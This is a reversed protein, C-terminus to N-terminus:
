YKRILISSLFILVFLLLWGATYIVVRIASKIDKKDLYLSIPYMFVISGCILASTVFLVLFLMAGFLNPANGFLEEGYRILLGILGCYLLVGLAQLFGILKPSLRGRDFKKSLTKM